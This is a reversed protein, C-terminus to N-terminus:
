ACLCVMASIFSSLKPALALSFININKIRRHASTDNVHTTVTLPVPFVDYIQLSGKRMISSTVQIELSLVDICKTLVEGLTKQSSIVKQCALLFISVLNQAKSHM